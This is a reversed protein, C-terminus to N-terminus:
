SFIPFEEEELVEDALRKIAKVTENRNGSALWGEIETLANSVTVSDALDELGFGGTLQEIRLSLLKYARERQNM